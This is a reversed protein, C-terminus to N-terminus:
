NKDAMMGELRRFEEYAKALEETPPLGTDIVAWSIEPRLSNTLPDQKIGVFGAILEMQYQTGFDDYLMDARSLGSPLDSMQVNSESRNEGLFPNQKDHLYPFFDLMWGTIHTETATACVLDIEEQKENYIKVWFSKNFTGKAALTFEALIPELADTWWGLDYKALERTQQQLKEWDEPSGELTIEPIGCSVTFSYHFYASMADMLTIRFATQEVSTSTSFSPDIMAELGDKTYRGIQESFEPFVGEWDNETSGKVFDARKVNLMKKGEFDVFLDRLEESNNDVHQAFGQMIMLWIMDPTLTLPRHEAYAKQIAYAVPHAETMVLDYDRDACDELKRKAGEGGLPLLSTVTTYEIVNRYTQESLRDTAPEVECLPYTISGSHPAPSPSPKLTFSYTVVAIVAAFFLLKKM